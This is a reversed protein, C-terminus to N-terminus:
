IWYLKVYIITLNKFSEYEKWRVRVMDEVYYTQYRNLNLFNYDSWSCSEYANNIIFNIMM